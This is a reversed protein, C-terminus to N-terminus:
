LRFCFQLMVRKLEVSCPDKVVRFPNVIFSKGLVIAVLRLGILTFLEICRIYM